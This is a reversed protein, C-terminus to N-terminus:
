LASKAALFTQIENDRFKDIVVLVEKCLENYYSNIKTETDLAYGLTQFSTTVKFVKLGDNIYMLAYDRKLNWSQSFFMMSEFKTTGLLTAAQTFINTDMTKDLNSLQEKALSRTQYIIFAAELDALRTQDDEIIIRDLELAANGIKINLEELALRIDGIANWRDKIDKIRNAEAIIALRIAELEAQWTEWELLLSDYTPKLIAPIDIIQDRQANLNLISIKYEDVVLQDTEILILEQISTIQMNIFDREIQNQLNILEYNWAQDDYIKSYDWESIFDASLRETLFKIFKKTEENKYLLYEADLKIQSPVTPNDLTGNQENIRYTLLDILTQTM